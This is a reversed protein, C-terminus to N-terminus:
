TVGHQIQVGYQTLELSVKRIKKLGSGALSTETRNQSVVAGLTKSSMPRWALGCGQWGTLRVLVGVGGDILPHGRRSRVWMEVTGMDCFSKVWVLWGVALYSADPGIRRPLIFLVKGRNESQGKHFRECWGCWSPGLLHPAVGTSQSRKGENSGKQRGVRM